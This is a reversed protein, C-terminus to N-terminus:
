KRDTPIPAGVSVGLSVSEGPMLVGNFQRGQSTVPGMRTGSPAVTIETETAHAFSPLKKLDAVDSVNVDVWEEPVFPFTWQKATTAWEQARVAVVMGTKKDLHVKMAGGSGGWWVLPGNKRLDALREARQKEKLVVFFAKTAAADARNPYKSRVFSHYCGGDLYDKGAVITSNSNMSRCFESPVRDSLDVQFWGGAFLDDSKVDPYAAIARRADQRLLEFDRRTLGGRLGGQIGRIVTENSDVSQGTITEIRKRDSATLPKDDMWGLKEEIPIGLTKAGISVVDHGLGTFWWVAFLVLGAFIVGILTNM